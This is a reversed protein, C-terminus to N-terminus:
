QGAEQGGINLEIHSGVSHWAPEAEQSTRARHAEAADLRRELDMAVFSRRVVDGPGKRVVDIYERITKSVADENDSSPGTAEADLLAAVALLRAAKLREVHAEANAHASWIGGVLFGEPRREVPGADPLQQAARLRHLEDEARELDVVANDCGERAEALESELRSTTRGWAEHKHELEDRLRQGLVGLSAILDVPDALIDQRNPAVADAAQDIRKLEARAEDRERRADMLAVWVAPSAQQGRLDELGNEQEAATPATQANVADVVRRADDPHEFVAVTRHPEIALKITRDGDLTWRAYTEYAKTEAM